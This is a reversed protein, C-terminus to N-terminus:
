KKDNPAVDVYSSDSIERERVVSQTHEARLTNIQDRLEKTYAESLESIERQHKTVIAAMTAAHHDRLQTMEERHAKREEAIENRLDVRESWVVRIAWILSVILGGTGGLQILDIGYDHSIESFVVAIGQFIAAFIFAVTPTNIM